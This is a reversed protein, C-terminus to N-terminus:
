NKRIMNTFTILYRHVALRYFKTYKHRINIEKTSKFFGDM